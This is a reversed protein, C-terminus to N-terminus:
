EEAPQGIMVVTGRWRDRLAALATAAGLWSTMHVDHGCAHMAPVPEGSPGTGTATSAYPLGSAELIPLADLDTRLLVVPGEGNRLVAVVGTRGVKETVEFGLACMRAALKAATAVEQFPLEPAAHLERYLATLGPVAASVERAVIAARESAGAPVHLAAALLAAGALVTRSM